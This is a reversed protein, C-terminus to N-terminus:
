MQKSFETKRGRYRALLSKVKEELPDSPAKFDEAAGGGKLFEKQFADVDAKHKKYFLTRIKDVDDRIEHPPRNEILIELTEVLEQKSRGSYDVEPLEELPEQAKKSKDEGDSVPERIQGQPKLAIGEEGAQDAGGSEDSTKSIDSKGDEIPINDSATEESGGSRVVSDAEESAVTEEQKEADEIESELEPIDSSGVKETGEPEESVTEQIERPHPDDESEESTQSEKGTNDEIETNDEEKISNQEDQVSDDPNKSKM